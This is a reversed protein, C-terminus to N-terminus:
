EREALEFRLIVASPLVPYGVRLRHAQFQESPWGLQALVSAIMEPAQPVDTSGLAEVGRGVREVSLALPLRDEERRERATRAVRDLESYVLAEPAFSPFLSEHVLVDHLLVETPRNVHAVLNGHTDGARRYRSAFAPFLEGTVVSISGTEGLPWETVELAVYGDPHDIARLKPIPQSCFAGLLPAPPHCSDLVVGPGITQRAAKADAAALADRVGMSLLTRRVDERVRRLGFLGNVIAIDIREGDSSPRLVHTVLRTRLQCGWISSNGRFATRRHHEDAQDRGEHALAGLMMDLSSRDGAHTTVLADLRGLAARARAIADGSAGKKQAADLFVEIAAAGPLHQSATLPDTASVVKWVQWGLKRSLEFVRAVDAAKSLRDPVSGLVGSFASRLSTIM